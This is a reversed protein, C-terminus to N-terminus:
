IKILLQQKLDNSDNDKTAETCLKKTTEGHFPLILPQNM